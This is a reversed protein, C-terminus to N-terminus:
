PTTNPKQNHIGYRFGDPDPLLACNALIDVVIMLEPQRMRHKEQELKLVRDRYFDRQQELENWQKVGCNCGEPWPCSMSHQNM